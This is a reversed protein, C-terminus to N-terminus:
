SEGRAARMRLKSIKTSGIGHRVDGGDGFRRLVFSTSSKNMWPAFTVARTASGCADQTSRSRAQASASSRRASRPLRM